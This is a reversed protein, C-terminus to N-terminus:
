GSLKHPNLIWIVLCKIIGEKGSTGFYGLLSIIMWRQFCEGFYIILIQLYPVQRFIVLIQHTSLSLGPRYQLPVNSFVHNISEELAGCRECVKDGQIGRVQMNERVLICGSILQWLFHKIKPPCRVKWCFDKLIDVSPGFLLPQRYRDPYVREVHYGSKVYIEWKEHFAM